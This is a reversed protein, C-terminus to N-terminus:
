EVPAEVRVGEVYASAQLTFLEAYLGDLKMLEAHTGNEVVRGLQETYARSFESRCSVMMDHYSVQDSEFTKATPM